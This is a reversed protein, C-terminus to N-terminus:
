FGLFKSLLDWAEKRLTEYETLYKKDGTKVFGIVSEAFLILKESTHLMKNAFDLEANSFLNQELMKQVYNKNLILIRTISQLTMLTQEKSYTKKEFGDAIAGVSIYSLYLASSTMVGFAEARLHDQNQAYGPTLAFAGFLLLSILCIKHM